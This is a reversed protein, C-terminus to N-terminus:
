KQLMTLAAAHSTSFFANTTSGREAHFQECPADFRFGPIGVHSFGQRCTLSLSRPLMAVYKVVIDSTLYTACM